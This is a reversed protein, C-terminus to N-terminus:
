MCFKLFIYLTLTMTMTIRNLHRRCARYHYAIYCFNVVSKRCDKIPKAAHRIKDLWNGFFPVVSCVTFPMDAYKDSAKPFIDNDSLFFMVILPHSFSHTSLFHLYNLFKADGFKAGGHALIHIEDINIECFTLFMHIAERNREIFSYGIIVLSISRSSTAMGPRTHEARERRVVLQMATQKKQQEITFTRM